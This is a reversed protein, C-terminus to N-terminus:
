DENMVLVKQGSELLNKIEKSGNQIKCLSLDAGLVDVVRIRGLYKKVSVGNTENESYVVFRMNECVGDGRGLNIYIDKPESQTMSKDAIVSGSTYFLINLLKTVKESLRGISFKLAQEHSNSWPSELDTVNVTRSDLLNGTHADKIDITVGIVVKYMDSPVIERNAPILLQTLWMVNTITGGITLAPTGNNIEQGAVVDFRRVNSVGKCIASRVSVLCTDCPDSSKGTTLLQGMDGIVSEVTGGNGVPSYIFDSISVDYKLSTKEQSFLAVQFAFLFLATSIFIRSKGM